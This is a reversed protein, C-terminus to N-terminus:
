ARRSQLAILARAACKRMRTHPSLCAVKLAELAALDFAEASAWGVEREPWTQLAHILAPVATAAERGICGLARAAAAGAFVDGREVISALWDVAPGADQGLQGLAMAVAKRNWGDAAQMAPHLAGAADGGAARAERALLSLRAAERHIREQLRRRDWACAIAWMAFDLLLTLAVTASAAEMAFVASHSTHWFLRYALCALAPYFSARVVCGFTIWRSTVTGNCSLSM